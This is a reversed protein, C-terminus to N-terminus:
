LSIISFYKLIDPLRTAFLAGHASAAIWDPVSALAPAYPSRALDSLGSDVRAIDLHVIPLWEGFLDDWDAGMMAEGRFADSPAILVELDDLSSSSTRLLAHPM